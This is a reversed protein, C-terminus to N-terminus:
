QFLKMREQYNAILIDLQRYWELMSNPRGHRQIQYEMVEEIRGKHFMVLKEFSEVSLKPSSVVEEFRSDYTEQFEQDSYLLWFLDTIHNDHYSDIFELAPEKLNTTNCLDLDYLLFRYKEEEFAYLRVNNHPWDFNAVMTEFICYDMFNSLDTHEKVFDLDENEIASFYADNLNFHDNKPLLTGKQYVEVLSVEKKPKQFLTTLGDANSDVRLNMVGLFNGNVFVIAAEGYMIDVDLGAELAMRTYTLDKLMTLGLDNGSNRLRFANIEDINHQPLVFPADLFKRSSNDYPDDFEIGLSKLSTENTTRGKREMEVEAADIIKEQNRYATLYGDVDIELLENEQEYMYLFEVQKVELDIVVLDTEMEAPVLEDFSALIERDTNRSCAGFLILCFIIKVRNM